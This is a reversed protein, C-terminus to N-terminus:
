LPGVVAALEAVDVPTWIPQGDEGLQVRDFSEAGMESGDLAANPAYHEVYEIREGPYEAALQPLVHEAANTISTGVDEPYQTVLALLRAPGTRWVRLHRVSADGFGVFWWARDDRILEAM